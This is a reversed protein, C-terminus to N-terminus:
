TLLSHYQNLTFDRKSLRGGGLGRSKTYGIDADASRQVHDNRYGLELELFNFNLHQMTYFGIERSITNPLYRQDGSGKMDRYQVEAGTTGTLFGTKKQGIELRGNHQRANFDNARNTGLLETNESFLGMYNLKVNAIPFNNFQYESELMAKHSLSRTNVPMYEIKKQSQGHSHEPMASLAYGPIGLYSYSNQYAVGMYFSKGIYSTGIHFSNRESHSNPITGKKYSVYDKISKVGRKYLPKNPDQGPIYQDNKPNPYDFTYLDDPSLDYEVMHDLAFQSIYPFLTVDLEIRDDVDIQCLAQLSPNYGVLQPDYCRSDKSLGPIKVIEQKQHTAGAKWVWNKGISGKASIGQRQGSNSGGELLVQIGIKKEPIQRIIYNTELDIAGGIAKGGYLVSASSKYVKISQVNDLDVDMNFDPSIGSLDNVSIGNELVRVRNGSLSRIVPAGSNPGYYSNQIGPIRELTGGLTPSQIVDLMKRSINVIDLTQKSVVNVPEINNVKNKKENVKQGKIVSSFAIFCSGILFIVNNKM